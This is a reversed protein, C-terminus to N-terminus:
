VPVEVSLISSLLCNYIIDTVLIFHRVLKLTETNIAVIVSTLDKQVINEGYQCRIVISLAKAILWRKILIERFM